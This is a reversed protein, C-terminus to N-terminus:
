NKEFANVAAVAESMTSFTQIDQTEGLQVFFLDILGKDKDINKSNPIWIQISDSFGDSSRIDKSISPLADHHYSSDCWDSGLTELLQLKLPASFDPNHVEFDRTETTNM